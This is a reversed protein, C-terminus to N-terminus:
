IKYFFYRDFNNKSVTDIDLVVEKLSMPLIKETDGDNQRNNKRKEKNTKMEKTTKGMKRRKKKDPKETKRRVKNTKMEKM